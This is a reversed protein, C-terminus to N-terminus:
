RFVTRSAGGHRDAASVARGAVAAASAHGRHSRDEPRGAAHGQRRRVEPHVTAARGPRNHDAEPHHSRGRDRVPGQRRRRGPVLCSHVAPVAELGPAHRSRAVAPVLTQCSHGGVPVPDPCSHRGVRQPDAAPRRVVAPHQVAALRPGWSVAAPLVPVPRNRVAAPASAM